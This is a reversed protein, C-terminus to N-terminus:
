PQVKVKAPPQKSLLLWASIATLPLVISWYPIFWVRRGDNPFVGHRFGICRWEWHFGIDESDLSVPDETEWVPIKWRDALSPDAAFDMVVALSSDVSGVAACGLVPLLVDTVIYSRMWAAVFACTIALIVAGFRRKWGRFFERM